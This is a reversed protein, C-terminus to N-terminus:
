GTVDSPYMGITSTGGPFGVVWWSRDPPSRLTRRVLGTIADGVSAIPEADFYKGDEPLGRFLLSLDDLIRITALDVAAIPGGTRIGDTVVGAIELFLDLDTPNLLEGLNLGYDPVTAALRAMKVFTALADARDRKETELVFKGLWISLSEDYAWFGRGSFMVAKTKSM